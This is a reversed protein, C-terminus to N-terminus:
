FSAILTEIWMLSFIGNMPQDLVRLAGDMQHQVRQVKEGPVVDVDEGVGM